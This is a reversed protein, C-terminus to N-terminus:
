LYPKYSAKLESILTGIKEKAAAVLTGEIKITKALKNLAADIESPLRLANIGMKSPLVNYTNMIEQFVVMTEETNKSVGWDEWTAFADKLMAEIIPFENSIIMACSYQYIELMAAFLRDHLETYLDPTMSESSLVKIAYAISGDSSDKLWNKVDNLTEIWDTENVKPLKEDLDRQSRNSYVGIKQIVDTFDAFLMSIESNMLM